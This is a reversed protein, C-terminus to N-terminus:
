LQGSFGFFTVPPLPLCFRYYDMKNHRDEYPLRYVADSFLSPDLRSDQFASNTLGRRKEGVVLFFTTVALTFGKLIEGTQPNRGKRVKKDKVNFTGFGSIKVKEGSELRCKMIEFMQEVTRFTEKHTFGIKEVIAQILDEKTM